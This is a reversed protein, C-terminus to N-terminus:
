IEWPPPPDLWAPPKPGGTQVLSISSGDRFSRYIFRASRECNRCEISDTSQAFDILKVVYWNPMACFPCPFHHTVEIGYGTLRLNRMYAAEYEDKSGLDTM